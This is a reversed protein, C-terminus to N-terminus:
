RNNLRHEAQRVSKTRHPFDYYLTTRFTGGFSFIVVVSPSTPSQHFTMLKEECLDRCVRSSTRLSCSCIQVVVVAANSEKLKYRNFNTANRLLGSANGRHQQKKREIEIRQRNEEVM